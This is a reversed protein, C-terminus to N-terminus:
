PLEVKVTKGTNPNLIYIETGSDPVDFAACICINELAMLSICKSGEPLKLDFIVKLMNVIVKVKVYVANLLLFLRM